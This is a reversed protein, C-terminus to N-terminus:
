SAKPKKELIEQIVRYRARTEPEQHAPSTLKNKVVDLVTFQHNKTRQSLNVPYQMLLEVADVTGKQVAFMLASWHNQDIANIDVIKHQLLAEAVELNNQHIAEMLLTMGNSKIQITGDCKDFVAQFLDTDSDQIAWFLADAGDSDRKLPEFKDLDSIKKAFKHKRYTIAMMFPTKGKNTLERGNGTTSNIDAGLDIWRCFADFDDNLICSVLPSFGYHDVINVDAKHKALWEIRAWDNAEIANLLTARTDCGNDILYMAVKDKKIRLAIDLATKGDRNMHSICNDAQEEVLLKILRQYNKEVAVMLPTNGLGDTCNLKPKQQLVQRLFEPNNLEVALSVISKNTNPDVFDIDITSLMQSARILDNRHIIEVFAINRARRVEDVKSPKSNIKDLFNKFSM